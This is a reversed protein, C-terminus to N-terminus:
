APSGNPGIDEVRVYAPASASAFVQGTGSTARVFAWYLASGSPTDTVEARLQTSWTTGSGAGPGNTNQIVSAGQRIELVVAAAPDTSQMQAEATIRLRRNAIDPTTVGVAELPTFATGIGGLNGVRRAEGVIGWPMNWPPRWALASAYWVLLSGTDTEFIVQGPTPAGPRTASTCTTVGRPRRQLEAIAGEVDYDRNDLLGLLEHSLGLDMGFDAWRDAFFFSV